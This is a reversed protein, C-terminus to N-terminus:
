ESDSPGGDEADVKSLDFDNIKGALMKTAFDDKINEEDPPPKNACSTAQDLRGANQGNRNAPSGDEDAKTQAKEEVDRSSKVNVKSTQALVNNLNIPESLGAENEEEKFAGDIMGTANHFTTMTVSHDEGEEDAAILVNKSTDEKLDKFPQKPDAIFSSSHSQQAQALQGQGSGRTDQITANVKARDNPTRAPAAPPLKMKASSNQIFNIGINSKKSSDIHKSAGGRHQSTSSQAEKSELPSAVNNIQLSSNHEREAEDVDDADGEGHQTDMGM